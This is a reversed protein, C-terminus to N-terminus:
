HTFIDKVTAGAQQPQDRGPRPTRLTLPKRAACRRSRPHTTGRRARPQTDPRSKDARDFGCPRPGRGSDAGWRGITQPRPREVCALRHAPFSPSATMTIGSWVIVPTDPSPALAGQTRRRVASRMGSWSLNEALASAVGTRRSGGITPPWRLAPGCRSRGEHGRRRLRRVSSPGPRTEDLRGPLVRLSCSQAFRDADHPPGVHFRCVM